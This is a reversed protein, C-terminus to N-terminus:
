LLCPHCVKLRFSTSEPRSNSPVDKGRARKLNCVNYVRNIQEVPLHNNKFGFM